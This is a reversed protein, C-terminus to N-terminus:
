AALGFLGAIFLAQGVADEKALWRVRGKRIMHVTEIGQITRWARFPAYGKALWVRKKVTRHDQEIVNNLYKCRRLAVRRPIAGEAKLAEVAAPYAPNKDVNMVRPMANGSAEIARRLFRKAAATDRKATLLFDITQGTSDIARYLYKDEGKVKIYTEDIRYSKNVAKLHPRCRRNLAPAYAQVWRWICSADVEVGREGLLEAVLEYSLPYQALHKPNTTVVLPSRGFHLAQAALLVDIDLAMPDATPRGTRRSQAWLEAAFRVADDTLAVYRDPAASVFADLSAIGILKNARLLERKIEYYVIAPVVVRAGARLCDKLWDTIAIVEHSRQPQRILGLPGSDFFLVENM